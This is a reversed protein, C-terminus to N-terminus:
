SECSCGGRRHRAVTHQSLDHGNAKLVQRIAVTTVDSSAFAAALVERDKPDLVEMVKRVTCVPRSPRSAATFDDLSLGM